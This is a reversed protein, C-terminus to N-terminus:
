RKWIADGRPEIDGDHQEQGAEDAVHQPYVNRDIDQGHDFGGLALERGFGLGM